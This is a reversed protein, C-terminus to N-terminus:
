ASSTGVIKLWARTAVAAPRQHRRNGARKQITLATHAINGSISTMLKAKPMLYSSMNPCRPKVWEKKKAAKVPRTAVDKTRDSGADRVEFEPRTPSNRQNVPM